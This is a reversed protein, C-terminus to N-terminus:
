EGSCVEIIRAFDHSRLSVAEMKLSLGDILGHLRDSKM